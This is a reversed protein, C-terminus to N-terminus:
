GESGRGGVHAPSSGASVKWVICRACSVHASALALAAPTAVFDPGEVLKGAGGSCCAAGGAVGGAMGAAPRV